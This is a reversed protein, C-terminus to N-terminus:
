LGGTGFDHNGSVVTQMTAPAYLPSANNIFTNNVIMTNQCPNRVDIPRATRSIHNGSVTLGRANELRLGAIPANDIINNQIKGSYAGIFYVTGINSIGAYNVMQNNSFDFGSSITSSSVTIEVSGTNEFTNGVIKLNPHAFDANESNFAIALRGGSIYNGSIFLDHYNGSLYIACYYNRVLINNTVAINWTRPNIGFKCGSVTNNTITLFEADSHTAIGAHAATFGATDIDGYNGTVHNGDIVIFRSVGYYKNTLASSLHSSIIGHRSNVIKNNSIRGYQSSSFVVSYSIIKNTAGLKDHYFENNDIVFHHCSIVELARCDLRDFVCNRITVNRGFFIRVGFDGATNTTPRGVGKFTMGDIVINEVPTIKRIRAGNATTYGLPEFIVTDLVLNNTGTYVGNLINLQGSNVVISTDPFSGEANMSVEVFDGESFVSADPVGIKNTKYVADATLLIETSATGRFVLLGSDGPTNFPSSRRSWDITSGPTGIIKINSYGILPYDCRVVEGNFRLEGGGVSNLYDLAAQVKATEDTGDGVAGFDKASVSERLKDQVTRAVARTGSQQFTVFQSDTTIGTGALTVAHGSADFGLYKLARSAAIPLTMNLTALDTEPMRISRLILDKQDQAIATLKDLAGEHVEAPFDDNTIYDVLQTLSTQRVISVNGIGVAPPVNFIVSGGGPNGAGSVTYQTTILQLEFAGTGPNQLFVQLDTDASIKFPYAFTTAMGNGSHLVTRTKTSITM